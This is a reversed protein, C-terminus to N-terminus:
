NKVNDNDFHLTKHYKANEELLKKWKQGDEKTPNDFNQQGKLEDMYQIYHVAKLQEKIFHDLPQLMFNSLWQSTYFGLPLGVESGDIILELIYLMREDRIKKKLWAKLVDHDVSEFFHRIDMKLVYKCNKKDRQIWREIYKKGYPAGRNPVSGCSFEYM